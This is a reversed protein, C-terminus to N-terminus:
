GHKDGSVFKLMLTLTCIAITKFVPKLVGLMFLIYKKIEVHVAIYIMLLKNKCRLQSDKYM